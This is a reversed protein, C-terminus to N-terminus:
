ESPKRASLLVAHSALSGLWPLAHFLKRASRTEVGWQLRHWQTPVIPVWHVQVDMAGAAELWAGFQSVRDYRLNLSRRRLRAQARKALTHLCNRNLVDVWIQGGPKVVRVMESVAREPRSLAQMVGFCIIGDLASSEIPLQTVDGVAWPTNNLSNRVCAKQLSPLSYDLGIASVGQESLYRTYSGAGCGADLWLSGPVDGPWLRQFNRLRTDLGSATWGAIEADDQFRQGREVFRRRWQEEFGPRTM